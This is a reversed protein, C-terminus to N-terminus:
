SISTAMELLTYVTKRKEMFQRTLCVFLRLYTYPILSSCRDHVITSRFVFHINTAISLEISTLFLPLVVLQCCIDVFVISSAAVVALSQLTM